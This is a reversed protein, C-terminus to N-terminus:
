PAPVNPYWRKADALMSACTWAPARTREHADRRTDYCAWPSTDTGVLKREDQAVGYVPDNDWWVGSTTSM